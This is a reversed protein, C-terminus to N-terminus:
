FVCILENFCELLVYAIPNCFNYGLSGMHMGVFKLKFTLICLKQAASIVVQLPKKFLM